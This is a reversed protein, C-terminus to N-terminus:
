FGSFCIIMMLKEKFFIMNKWMMWRHPFSLKRHTFKKRRYIILITHFTHFTELIENSNEVITSFVKHFDFIWM